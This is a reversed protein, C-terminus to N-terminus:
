SVRVHPVEHLSTFYLRIFVTPVWQQAQLLLREALLDAVAVSRHRGGPCQLHVVWTPDATQPTPKTLQDHLDDAIREVLTALFTGMNPQAMLWQQVQPDRGTLTPFTKHPNPLHHCSITRDPTPFQAVTPLRTHAIGTALTEISLALLRPM